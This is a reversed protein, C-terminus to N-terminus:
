IKPSLQSTGTNAMRPSQPLPLRSPIAVQLASQRKNLTPAYHNIINFWFLKYVVFSVSPFQLINKFLMKAPM